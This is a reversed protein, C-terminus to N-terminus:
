LLERGMELLASIVLSLSSFHVRTGMRAHTRLDWRILIQAGLPGPVKTACSEVHLAGDALLQEKHATVPM